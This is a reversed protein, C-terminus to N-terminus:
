ADDLEVRIGNGSRTPGYLLALAMGFVLHELYAREKPHLQELLRGVGPLRGHPTHARLLQGLGGAAETAYEASGFLAGKLVPPGPVRPEVVAGYVLGQGLGTLVTDAIDGDRVVENPQGYLLPRLLDVLLAAAAGAAGARLLWLLGNPQRRRRGGLVRGAAVAIASSVLDDMSPWHTEQAPGSTRREGSARERLGALAKGGAPRGHLAREVVYGIRYWLSPESAM